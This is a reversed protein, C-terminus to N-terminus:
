MPSKEPTDESESQFLISELSEELLKRVAQNHNSVCVLKGAVSKLKERTEEIFTVGAQDVFEVRELDFIINSVGSSEIEQMIPVLSRITAGDLDGEFSFPLSDGSPQILTNLRRTTVFASRDKWRSGPM